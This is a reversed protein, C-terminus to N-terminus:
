SLYAKKYSVRQLTCNSYPATPDYANIYLKRQAIKLADYLSPADILEIPYGRSGSLSATSRAGRTFTSTTVFLGRTIGRLMLAGTFARIQEAEIKSEYRKVQVAVIKGGSDTMVVDIGGDNTQGTVIVDAYGLDRYVSAVVEELTRPSLSKRSEYRAALYSRIAGLPLTSDLQHFEYLSGIAANVLSFAYAGAADTGHHTDYRM